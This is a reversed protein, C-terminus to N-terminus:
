RITLEAVDRVLRDDSSIPRELIKLMQSRHTRNGHWITRGGTVHSYVIGRSILLDRVPVVCPQLSNDVGRYLASDVRGSGRQLFLKRIIVLLVKVPDQLTSRVIAANTDRHDYEAIECADFMEPLAHANAIGEVKVIQCSSLKIDSEHAEYRLHNIICGQLFLNAIPRDELDIVDALGDVISLGQGDFAGDESSSAGTLISDLALTSESWRNVAEKAASAYQGSTVGLQNTLPQAVSCGLDTLPYAPGRIGCDTYPHEIFRAVDGAQLTELMEDDVFSRAGVEQDRATLGPLRQLMTSPSMAPSKGTHMPFIATWCPDLGRLYVVHVLRLINLYYDFLM